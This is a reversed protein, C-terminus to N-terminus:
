SKKKSSCQKWFSKCCLYKSSSSSMASNYVDFHLSIPLPLCFHYWSFKREHEYYAVFCPTGNGFITTASSHYSSTSKSFSTSPINSFYPFASTFFSTLICALRRRFIHFWLTASFNILIILLSCLFFLFHIMDFLLPLNIKLCLLLYHM